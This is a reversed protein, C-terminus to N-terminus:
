ADTDEQPGRDHVSFRLVPGEDNLRQVLAAVEGFTDYGTSHGDNHGTAWQIFYRPRRTEHDSM